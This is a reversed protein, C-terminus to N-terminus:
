GWRRPGISAHGPRAVVRTQEVSRQGLGSVMFMFLRPIKVVHQMMTDWNCNYNERLPLMLTNGLILMALRLFTNRRTKLIM